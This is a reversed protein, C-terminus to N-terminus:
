VAYVTELVKQLWIDSGNANGGTTKGNSGDEGKLRAERGVSLGEMVHPCTRDQRIAGHLSPLM